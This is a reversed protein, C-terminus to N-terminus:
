GRRLHAPALSTNRQGRSYPHSFLISSILAKRLSWPIPHSATSKKVRNLWCAKASFSFYISNKACAPSASTKGACDKFACRLNNFFLKENHHNESIASFFEHREGFKVFKIFILVM